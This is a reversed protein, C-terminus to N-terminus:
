WEFEGPIIENWESWFRYLVNVLKNYTVNSKSVDFYIKQLYRNSLKISYNSIEWKLKYSGNIDDNDNIEHKYVDNNISNLIKTAHEDSVSELDQFFIPLNNEKAYSIVGDYLHSMLEYEDKFLLKLLPYNDFYISRYESDLIDEYTNIKNLVVADIKINNLVKNTSINQIPPNLSVDILISCKGDMPREYGAVEFELKINTEKIIKM